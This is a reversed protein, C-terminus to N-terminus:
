GVREVFSEEDPEPAAEGKRVDATCYFRPERMIMGIKLEAFKFKQEFVHGGEKTEVGHWIKEFCGEANEIYKRKIM